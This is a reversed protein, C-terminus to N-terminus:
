EYQKLGESWSRMSLNQKLQVKGQFETLLNSLHSTHLM